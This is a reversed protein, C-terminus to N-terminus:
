PSEEQQIFTVLGQQQACTLVHHHNRAHWFKREQEIIKENMAVIKEELQALKNYYQQAKHRMGVLLFSLFLCKIILTLNFISMLYKVRDISM